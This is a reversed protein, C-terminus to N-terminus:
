VPACVSSSRSAAPYGDHGACSIFNGVAGHLCYASEAQTADSTKVCASFHLGGPVARDGAMVADIDKYAGPTEDLRARAASRAQTSRCDPFCKCSQISRRQPALRLM